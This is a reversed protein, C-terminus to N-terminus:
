ALTGGITYRLSSNVNGREEGGITLQCDGRWGPDRFKTWSLGRIKRAPASTRRQPVYVLMVLRNAWESAYYLTGLHAPSM